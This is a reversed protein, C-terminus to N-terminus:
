LEEIKEIVIKGIKGESALREADIRVQDCMDDSLFVGVSVMLDEPLSTLSACGKLNLIGTV